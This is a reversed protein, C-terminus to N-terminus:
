CRPCDGFDVGLAYMAALVVAVGLGYKVLERVQWRTEANM